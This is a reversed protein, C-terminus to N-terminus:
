EPRVGGADELEQVVEGKADLIRPPKFHWSCYYRVGVMAGRDWLSAKFGNVNVPKTVAPTAPVEDSVQYEALRGCGKVDCPRDLIPTVLKNVGKFGPYSKDRANCIACLDQGQLTLPSGCKACNPAGMVIRTRSATDEKFRPVFKFRGRARYTLLDGNTDKIEKGSADVQFAELEMKETDLWIVKPVKLGTDLDLVEGRIGQQSHLIM